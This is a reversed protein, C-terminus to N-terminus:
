YNIKMIKLLFLNILLGITYRRIIDLIISFSLIIIGKTIYKIFFYSDNINTIYWINYIYPSINKNGHILYVGLISASIWNIKNNYFSINKFLYIIGISGIISILSNINFSLNINFLIYNYNNFHFALIDFIIEFLITIIFYSIGILKWLYKYELDYIKIYGGIIYSLLLRIFPTNTFIISKFNYFNVIPEFICYFIIILIVLIRYKTKKLSLLGTNIFPTFILLVLYIQIFWNGNLSLIPFYIRFNSYNPFIFKKYKKSLKKGIYLSPYYYTYIELLFNFFKNLNFTTKTVSFYGSIMIFVNNGFQGYNSIIKLLIYKLNLLYKYNTKNLKQLSTTNTFIHHLVILTILILRLLEISSNRKKTNKILNNLNNNKETLRNEESINNNYTNEYKMQM